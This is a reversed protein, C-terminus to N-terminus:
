VHVLLLPLRIKLLYENFVSKIILIVVPKVCRIMSFIFVILNRMVSMVIEQSILKTKEMEFHVQPNELQKPAVFVKEVRAQRIGTKERSLHDKKAIVQQKEKKKDKRRKKREEKSPRALSGAARLLAIKQTESLKALLASDKVLSEIIETCKLIDQIDYKQKRTEDKM